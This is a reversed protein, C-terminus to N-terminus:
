PSVGSYPRTAANRRDSAADYMVPAVTCTSPPAIRLTRYRGHRPGGARRPTPQLLWLTGIDTIRFTNSAMDVEGNRRSCAVFRANTRFDTEANMGPSFTSSASAAAAVSAGCRILVM